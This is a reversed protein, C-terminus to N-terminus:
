GYKLMLSIKLSFSIYFSLETIVRVELSVSEFSRFAKLLVHGRQHALDKVFVKSVFNNSYSILDVLLM